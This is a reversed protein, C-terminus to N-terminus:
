FTIIRYGSSLLKRLSPHGEFEGLLTMGQAVAEDRVGFAKACYDCIGAIKSEVARYLSHYKHDPNSLEVPWKVGAGDFILRVDDEADMCEKVAELANVVRGFGEHTGTDALVVVAVKLREM